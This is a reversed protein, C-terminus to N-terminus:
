MATQRASLLSQLNGTYTRDLELNKKLSITSPKKQDGNRMTPRVQQRSCHKCATGDCGRDIM